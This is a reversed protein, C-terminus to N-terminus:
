QPPLVRIRVLEVRDVPTEGDVPVAEIKQV